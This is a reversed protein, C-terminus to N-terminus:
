HRTGRGAPLTAGGCGDDVLAQLERAVVEAFTAPLGTADPAWQAEALLLVPKSLEPHAKRNSAGLLPAPVHVARCKSEAAAAAALGRGHQRFALALLRLLCPAVGQATSSAVGALGHAALHVCPPLTGDALEVATATVIKGINIPHGHVRPPFACGAGVAHPQHALTLM